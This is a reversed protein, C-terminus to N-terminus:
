KIKPRSPCDDQNFNTQGFSSYNKPWIMVGAKWMRSLEDNM